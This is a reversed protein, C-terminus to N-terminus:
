FLKQQYRQQTDLPRFLDTRLPGLERALGLKRSFTQFLSKVQEALVGTGTMRTKFQSSNMNGDRMSKIRSAIKEARDPFNRHVWDLFVPEVTLPLRLMIYNAAQAGADKAAALLAPIEQDNIGPIIPAISVRVPIGAEALAKISDLRAQPSSTRPEMLRVLSQDLTTLSITTETLGFQALEGLLDLDRRILANKTILRIPQRMALAVELCQRTLKFKQECGQYCDTVGSLMIPEPKWGPRHLWKRLFNPADPKVIIRSEFDIGANFGLYEHTPRAYCYSCGHACGRYPNLSYNFDLDPSDNHSIISESRDLLYETPIKKSLEAQQDTEDLQEFDAEVHVREFRNAIRLSSGRGNITPLRRNSDDTM